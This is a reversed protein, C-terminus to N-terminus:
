GLGHALAQDTEQMKDAATNLYSNMDNLASITQSAGQHFQAFAHDFAKSASDSVWGNSVLNSILNQAQKLYDQIQGEITTLQRGAGKMEEYSATINAM